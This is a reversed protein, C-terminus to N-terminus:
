SETKSGGSGADEDQAHEGGGHREVRFREVPMIMVGLYARTEDEPHAGLTVTASTSEGKRDFTLGVEDGPSYGALAELLGELGDVENDDIAIILDGQQLQATSAPGEDQVAMVLAGAAQMGFPRGGDAGPGRPFRFLFGRRGREHGDGGYARVHFRDAPRIRLGLYAKTEDDPRAGLTVTLQIKEGDRAVTLEVEDGPSYGAVAEALENFGSLEVGDIGTILDGKLLGAGAAPGDEMVGMVEAGQAAGLLGELARAPGMRWVASFGRMGSTRGRQPGMRKGGPGHARVGLVPYGERDGLTVNLTLEEDGRKVTLELADGPDRMLIVKKLEPATNVKDGDIALLIDGRAIGAEAAPTRAGVGTILVGPEPKVREDPSAASVTGSFALIALLALSLVMSFKRKVRTQAPRAGAKQAYQQM